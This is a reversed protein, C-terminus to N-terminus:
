EEFGDLMSSLDSINDSLSKDDIKEGKHSISGKMSKVKRDVARAHIDSLRDYDIDVNDDSKDTINTTDNTQSQTQKNEKKLLDTMNKIANLVENNDSNNDNSKLNALEERIIDRVSKQIDDKSISPQVEEVQQTKQKDHKIIKIKGSQVYKALEQSHEPKSKLKIEHLDIAQKSKLKLGLEKISISDHSSNTILFM